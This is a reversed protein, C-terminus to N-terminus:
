IGFQRHDEALQLIHPRWDHRHLEQLRIRWHDGSHHSRRLRREQPTSRQIGMRWHEEAKILQEFLSDVVDNECDENNFPCISCPIRCFDSVPTKSGNKCYEIIKDLAEEKTM